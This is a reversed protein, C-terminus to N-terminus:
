PASNASAVPRPKLHNGAAPVVRLFEDFYAEMDNVADRAADPVQVSTAERSLPDRVERAKPHVLANRGAAVKGLLKVLPDAKTLEIGDCMLLLLRLKSILGLREVHDNFVSEGLRMVGYFNLYGEVAMPAYMRVADSARDRRVALDWVESHLERDSAKLNQEPPFPWQKKVERALVELEQLLAYASRRYHGDRSAWTGYAGHPRLVFPRRTSPESATTQREETM